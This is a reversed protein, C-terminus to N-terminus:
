CFVLNKIVKDIYKKASPHVYYMGDDRQWEICKNKIIRITTTPCQPPDYIRIEIHPEKIGPEVNLEFEYSKNYEDVFQFLM